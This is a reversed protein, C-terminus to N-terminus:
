RFLDTLIEAQRNISYNDNIYNLGNVAMDIHKSRDILVSLIFDAAEKPKDSVCLHEGSNLTTGEIGKATTYVLQGHALADIVKIKVGAGYLVPLTIIAAENIEADLNDVYGCVEINHSITCLMNKDEDDINGVVKLRANPCKEIILPLVHQVFWVISLFNNRINLSGYYLLIHSNNQIVKECIKPAATPLLKFKSAYEPYKITYTNCEDSSIFLFSDFCNCMDREMRQYKRSEMLQALRYIKSNSSKALEKRYKSEINHMRLIHREANIINKLRYLMMYEGEYIAVDYTHKKLEDIMDMNYRRYVSMPYISFLLAPEISKMDYIFINKISNFDAMITDFHYPMKEEKKCLLYLDVECDKILSLAEIRTRIDVKGGDTPESFPNNLSLVAVKTKKM